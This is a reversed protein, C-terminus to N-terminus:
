PLIHAAYTISGDPSQYYTRLGVPMERQGDFTLPGILMYLDSKENVHITIWWWGNLYMEADNLAQQLKTM